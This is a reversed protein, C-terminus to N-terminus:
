ENLAQELGKLNERMVTIYNEGAKVQDDTLGELPNLVATKAGVENAITEAIKPSVLTEFFITKVNHQKAFDVVKAMQAATPEQEPSLGSIPVQTLGYDRAMYAFAAHQTIFDKRKASSLGTKYDNDLQALEKIYADANQKYQDAHTPDLQVLAAEINKVETQAQKPSLWVHPDFGGHDHGEESHDAAEESHDGAEGEHEHDEEETGELIQVGKSAEVLVPGNSGLSDKVQDIWGEMGAGNYVIMNAETMKAIDQPTPEWDHPETGPPILVEVDALDGAVKSTFEEMPYFSTIIHLKSTGSTESGATSNSAAGNSGSNGCGALMVGLSLLAAAPMMLWNRKNGNNKM